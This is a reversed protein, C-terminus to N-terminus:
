LERTGDSYLAYTDGTAPNIFTSVITRGGTPGTAGAPELSSIVENADKIAQNGAAIAEAINEDENAAIPTATGTAAATTVPVAPTATVPTAQTAITGPASLGSGPGYRGKLYTEGSAADAYQQIIADTGTPDSINIVQGPKIDPSKIEPNLAILDKISIGAKAAIDRLTEGKKVKITAM